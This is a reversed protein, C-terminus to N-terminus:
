KRQAVEARVYGVTRLFKEGEVSRLFTVLYDSLIRVMGPPMFTPQGSANWITIMHYLTKVDEAM